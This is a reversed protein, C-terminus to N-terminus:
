EEEMVTANVGQEPIGGDILWDALLDACLEIARQDVYADPYEDRWEEITGEDIDYDFHLRVRM